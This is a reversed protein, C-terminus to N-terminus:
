KLSELLEETGPYKPDRRQLETLAERAQAPKGAEIYAQALGFRLHSGDPALEVAVAYEDVAEAVEHRGIAAEARIRHMEEDMVDIQIAQRAWDGAAAYDKNALAL